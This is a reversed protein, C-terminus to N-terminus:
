SASGARLSVLADRVEPFDLEEVSEKWLRDMFRKGEETYM